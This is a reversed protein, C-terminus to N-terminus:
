ISCKSFGCSRCTMCGEGMEMGEGCEPCKNKLPVAKVKSQIVQKGRSAKAFHPNSKSKKKTTELVQGERSGSRYITVGKCKLEWALIYAKEVQELTAESPFNITKSVANEVRKQFGAQMKIHAEPSIDYATVFVKKILDPLQEIDQCSGTKSVRQYIKNKEEESIKLDEVAKRFYENVYSLGSEEVVNKVYSLAFVPEIGSSCDAVMSITGTPAITTVALNRRRLGKKEFESGKYNPFVGKEKALNQSENVGVKNVFGMVKEAVRVGENSNYGVEMQYLMDAFGMVGLGIRRNARAMKKIQKIPYRSLDVGNDLFRVGIRVVEELKKWNVQRGSAKRSPRIMKALNISGLNCVDFPHLPQEGCPNTAMLRGLTEIVPNNKNITDLFVMGPDGTRWALSVMQNFLNKAEITQVVERTRPNRLAFKKDDRVAKMFEDTVGVSINFNSIEGEDTKCHIFEMIDPHSVDLIGMNAGMRYGGQMVQATAADFVKMFSIPGTSFGGSSNVFDGKPRLKSFNFGTGGGAQQVLALWKVSDFIGEMNDEVPLVFCNAITPRKMGASRLYGGAPVFEMRSIVRYFKEQWEKRKGKTEIKAVARAVRRFLKKPTEITKGYEDHRLYRNELVKLQNVSLGLDDKVGIIQKVIRTKQQKERYLIFAKATAFHGAAMLVQEVVDSVQEVTPLNGNIGKQLINVVVKTLRDAEKKLNRVKLFERELGERKKGTAELAKLIVRAIKAESFDAKRGDRKVIMILNTMHQVQELWVSQM